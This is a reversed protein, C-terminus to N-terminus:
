TPDSNKLIKPGVMPLKYFALFRLKGFIQGSNKGFGSNNQVRLKEELPCFFLRVYYYEVYLRDVM